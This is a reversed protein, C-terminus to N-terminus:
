FDAIIVNGTMSLELMIKFDTSGRIKKGAKNLRLKCFRIHNLNVIHYESIHICQSSTVVSLGILM